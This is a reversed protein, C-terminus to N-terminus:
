LQFLGTCIDYAPITHKYVQVFRAIITVHVIGLTGLLSPVSYQPCSSVLMWQEPVDIGCFEMHRRKLSDRVAQEEFLSVTTWTTWVRSPGPGFGVKSEELVKEVLSIM